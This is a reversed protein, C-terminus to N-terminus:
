SSCKYKVALVKYDNVVRLQLANLQKKQAPTLRSVATNTTVIIDCLDKNNEQIATAIARSEIQQQSKNNVNISYLNLGFSCGLFIFLAIVASTVPIILNKKKNKEAMHKRIVIIGKRVRVIGNAILIIKVQM